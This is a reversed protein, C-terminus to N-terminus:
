RELIYFDGFEDDFTAILNEYDGAVMVEILSETQSKSYGLVKATSKALGLLVYANGDPGTLDIVVPGTRVSKARITM